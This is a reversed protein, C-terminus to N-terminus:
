VITFPRLPNLRVYVARYFMERLQNVCASRFTRRVRAIEESSVIVNDGDDVYDPM